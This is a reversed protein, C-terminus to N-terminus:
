DYRFTLDSGELWKQEWEQFRKVTEVSLSERWTGAKGQRMFSSPDFSKDFMMNSM